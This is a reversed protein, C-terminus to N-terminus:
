VHARGIQYFIVLMAAFGLAFAVLIRVTIGRLGDRLGQQYLGTSTLAGLMVGTFVLALPLQPQAAVKAAASPDWFLLSTGAYVSFALILGEALALAVLAKSVYHRFIRVAM